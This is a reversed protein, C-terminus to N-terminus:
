NTLTYTEISCVNVDHRVVNTGDRFITKFDFHCYGTGDDLDVEVHYGPPVVYRGLVDEQWDDTGVNSAYFHTITSDSQNDIEVHRDYANANTLTAMGFLAAGAILSINLAKTM